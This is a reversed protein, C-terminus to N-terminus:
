EGEKEESDLKLPWDVAPAPFHHHPSNRTKLWEFRITQVQKAKVVEEVLRDREVRLAQHYDVFLSAMRERIHFAQSATVGGLERVVTELAEQVCAQVLPDTLAVRRVEDQTQAQPVPTM